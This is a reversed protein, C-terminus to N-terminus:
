QITECTIPYMHWPVYGPQQVWMPPQTYVPVTPLVKTSDTGLTVTVEANPDISRLLDLAEWVKM